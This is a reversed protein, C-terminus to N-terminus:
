ILDGLYSVRISSIDDKLVELDDKPILAYPKENIVVVKVGIVELFSGDKLYVHAMDMFLSGYPISPLLALGEHDVTLLDTTKLGVGLDKFSKKLLMEPHFRRHTWPVGDGPRHIVEIWLEGSLDELPAFDSIRNNM